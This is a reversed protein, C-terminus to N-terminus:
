TTELLAAGPANVGMEATDLVSAVLEATCRQEGVVAKLRAELIAAFSGAAAAEEAYSNTDSLAATDFGMGSVVRDRSLNSLPAMVLYIDQELSSDAERSTRWPGIM